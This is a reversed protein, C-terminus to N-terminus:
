PPLRKERVQTAVKSLLWVVFRKQRVKESLREVVPPEWLIMREKYFSLSGKGSEPLGQAEKALGPSVDEM